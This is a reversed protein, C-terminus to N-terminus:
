SFVHQPLHKVMGLHESRYTCQDDMFHNIYVTCLVWFFVVNIKLKESTTLYRAAPEHGSPETSWLELDDYLIWPDAQLYIEGPPLVLSRGQWIVAASM